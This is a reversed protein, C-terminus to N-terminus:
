FKTRGTDIRLKHHLTFQGCMWHSLHVQFIKKNGGGRAIKSKWVDDSWCEFKNQLDDKLRWFEIAGDEERHLEGHRLLTNIRKAVPYAQDFQAGPEIDIWTRELIPVTRSPSCTTSLRSPIAKAKSRSAFAFIETKTTSTEQEDDDYERDILDSFNQGVLSFQRQKGVWNQNGSRTYRTLLQNSVPRIKTNGQIWGEPWNIQRRTTVYVWSM